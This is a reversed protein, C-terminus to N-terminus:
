KKKYCVPIDDRHTTSRKDDGTPSDAVETTSEIMEREASLWVATFKRRRITNMAKKDGKVTRRM